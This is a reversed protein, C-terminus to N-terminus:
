RKMNMKICYWISKKYNLKMITWTIWRPGTRNVVEEESFHIKNLQIQLLCPIDHLVPVTIALQYELDSIVSLYQNMKRFCFLKFIINITKYIQKPVAQAQKLTFIHISTVDYNSEEICISNELPINHNRDGFM